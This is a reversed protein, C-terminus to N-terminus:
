LIAQSLSKFQSCLAVTELSYSLPLLSHRVLRVRELQTKLRAAELQASLASDAERRCLEKLHIGEARTLRLQEDLDANRTREAWLEEQLSACRDEAQMCM